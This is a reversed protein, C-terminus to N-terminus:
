KFASSSVKWVCALIMLHYIFNELWEFWEAGSNGGFGYYFDQMIIMLVWVVLVAVMSGKVYAKNIGKLFSPVILLVGCLILVIGLIISLVENDLVEFLDNNTEGMVGQIGICIFLVGTLIRMLLDGNFNIADKALSTKAM